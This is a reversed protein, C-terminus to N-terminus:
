RYQGGFYDTRQAVIDHHDIDTGCYAHLEPNTRDFRCHGRQHQWRQCACCQVHRWDFKRYDAFTNCHQRRCRYCHLSRHRRHFSIAPRRRCKRHCRIVSSSPQAVTVGISVSAGTADFVLVQSAGTVIGNITLVNGAINAAAVIANSSSASYPAAGGGITFTNVGGVAVTIASASTTYLTVNTVSPPITVTITVNAGVADLISIQASGASVGGITLTTGNSGIVATAVNSNSSSAKYLPTGGGITYSTSVGVSLTVASPATSFLATGTPLGVTGTGGSSAMAMLALLTILGFRFYRSIACYRLISTM